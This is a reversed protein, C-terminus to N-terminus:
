IDVVYSQNRGCDSRIEVRSAFKSNLGTKTYDSVDDDSDLDELRQFNEPYINWHHKPDPHPGPRSPGEDENGRYNFWLYYEKEWEQYEDIKYQIEAVNFDEASNEETPTYYDTIVKNDPGRQQQNTRVCECGM